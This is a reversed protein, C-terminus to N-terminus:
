RLIYIINLLASHHKISRISVAKLVTHAYIIRSFGIKCKNKIGNALACRCHFFVHKFNM